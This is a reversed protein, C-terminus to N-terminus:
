DFESVGILGHVTSDPISAFVGVGDKRKVHEVTLLCKAGKLAVYDWGYEPAKGLLGKLFGFLTSKENGSIKMRRGAVKHPQGQAARCGSLSTTLDARGGGAPPGAGRGGAGQPAGAPPPSARFAGAPSPPSTSSSSRPARARPGRDPAGPESTKPCIGRRPTPLSRHSCCRHGLDSAGGSACGRQQGEHRKHAEGRAAADLGLVVGRGHAPRLAARNARTVRDSGDLLGVTGWLGGPLEADARALTLANFPGLGGLGAGFLGRGTAVGGFLVVVFVGHVFWFIGYHFWFFVALPLRGFSDRICM